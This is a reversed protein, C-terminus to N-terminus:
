SQGRFKHIDCATHRRLMDYVARALKQALVTLAKGQGQTKELRSLYKHGTPNDRLVLVAAESFAWTLYANGLKSGPAGYRKGASEQACTVLRCDSAVDQVRPFRRIAHLEDLLVLSLLTGIGPVLHLQYFTAPDHPKATRVMSFEVDKLRQDYCGMLALDVEINKQVAPDAFREALGDRTAKYAINQSFAPLTYQHNTQQVHTLWAARKRMLHMRRRLLDRTARM